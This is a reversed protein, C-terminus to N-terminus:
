KIISSTMKISDDGSAVDDLLILDLCVVDLLFVEEDGGRDNGALFLLVERGGRRTLVVFGGSLDFRGLDYKRDLDCEGSPLRDDPLVVDFITVNDTGIFDDAADVEFEFGDFDVRDRPRDGAVLKFEEFV